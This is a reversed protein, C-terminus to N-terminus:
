GWWWHLGEFLAEGHAVGMSSYCSIGVISSSSLLQEHGAVAMFVAGMRWGPWGLMDWMLIPALRQWGHSRCVVLTHLVDPSEIDAVM